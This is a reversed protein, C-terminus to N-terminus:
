KKKENSEAIKESLENEIVKDLSKNSLNMKKVLKAYDIIEQNLDINDEKAFQKIRGVVYMDTILERYKKSKPYACNLTWAVVYFLMFIALISAIGVFLYPVITVANDYNYNINGTLGALNPSILNDLM